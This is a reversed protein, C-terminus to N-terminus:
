CFAVTLWMGLPPVLSLGLAAAGSMPLRGALAGAISGASILALLVYESM